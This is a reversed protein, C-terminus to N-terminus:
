KAWLGDATQYPTNSAAAKATLKEGAIKEINALSTKQQDAIEQYKQQRKRNISQVLRAADSHSKVLLGLYGDRQEGVLMQQKAQDLELAWLHSSLILLTSAFLIRIMM